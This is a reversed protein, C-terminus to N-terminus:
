PGSATDAWTVDVGCKVQAPAARAPRLSPPHQNLCVNLGVKAM